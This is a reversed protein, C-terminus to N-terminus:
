VPQIRSQQVFFVPKPSEFAQDVVNEFGRSLEVRFEAAFLVQRM